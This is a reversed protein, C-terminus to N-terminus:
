DMKMMMIEHATSLLLAEGQQLKHGVYVITKIIAFKAVDDDSQIEKIAPLQQGYTNICTDLSDKSSDGSTSVKAMNLMRLFLKYCSPCIRDTAAIQVDYETYERLLRRTNDIDPCNRPRVNKLSANCTKCNPQRPNHISYVAWYHTHCLPAPKPIESNCAVKLEAQSLLLHMNDFNSSHEATCQCNLVCCMKQSQTQEKTSVWNPIIKEKRLIKGIDARCQKCVQSTADLKLSATAYVRANEDTWQNPFTIYVTTKNCLSCSQDHKHKEYSM